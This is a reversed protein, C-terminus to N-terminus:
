FYSESRSGKIWVFIFCLSLMLGPLFLLINKLTLSNNTVEFIPIHMAISSGIFTGISAVIFLFLPNLVRYKKNMLYIIITVFASVLFNILLIQITLQLM